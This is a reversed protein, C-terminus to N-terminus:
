TLVEVFTQFWWNPQPDIFFVSLQVLPTGQNLLGNSSLDFGLYLSRDAAINILVVTLVISWYVSGCGFDVQLRLYCLVRLRFFRLDLAWLWYNQRNQGARVVELKRYFSPLIFLFVAASMIFPLLFAGNQDGFNVCGFSYPLTLTLILFFVVM